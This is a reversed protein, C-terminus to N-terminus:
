EIRNWRESSPDRVDYPCPPAQCCFYVMPPPEPNCLLGIPQLADSACAGPGTSFYSTRISEYCHPLLMQEAAIHCHMVPYKTGLLELGSHQRLVDHVFCGTICCLKLSSHIIWALVKKKELGWLNSCKLASMKSMQFPKSHLDTTPWLCKRVICREWRQPYFDVRVAQGKFTLCVFQGSIDIVLWWVKGCLMGCSQLGWGCQLLLRCDHMSKQKETRSDCSCCCKLLKYQHKQLVRCL